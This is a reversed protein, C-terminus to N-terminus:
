ALLHSGELEQGFDEEEDEDVGEFNDSLTSVRRRNPKWAGFLEAGGDLLGSVHLSGGFFVSVSM